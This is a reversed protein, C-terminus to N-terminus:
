SAIGNLYKNCLYGRDLSDLFAEIFKIRFERNSEIIVIKSIVNKMLEIKGDPYAINKPKIYDDRTLEVFKYCLVFLLVAEVRTMYLGLLRCRENEILLDAHKKFESSVNRSYISTKDNNYIKEVVYCISVKFEDETWFWSIIKMVEDLIDKKSRQFESIGFKHNITNFSDKDVVSYM